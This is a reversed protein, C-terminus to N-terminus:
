EEPTFWDCAVASCVLDLAAADIKATRKVRPACIGDALHGPEKSMLLAHCGLEHAFGGPSLDDFEFGLVRYRTRVITVAGPGDLQERVVPSGGDAMVATGKRVGAAEWRAIALQMGAHLDADDGADIYVVTTADDGDDLYAACGWGNFSLLLAFALALLYRTCNGARKCDDCAGSHWRHATPRGCFKCHLAIV